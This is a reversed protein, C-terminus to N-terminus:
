RDRSIKVNVGCAAMFVLTAFVNRERASLAAEAM